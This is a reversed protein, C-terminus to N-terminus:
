QLLMKYDRLDSSFEFLEIDFKCTIHFAFTQLITNWM